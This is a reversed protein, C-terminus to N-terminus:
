KKGCERSSMAAWAAAGIIGASNGLRAPVIKVKKRLPPLINGLASRRIPDLVVAGAQGLGGGIVVLEPNFVNVMNGIAIGLYRAASEIAAKAHPCGRHALRCVTRPDVVMEDAANTACRRQGACPSKPKAYHARVFYEKVIAPASAYAELCGRNGCGCLRGGPEVVTHGLEGATGEYGELLKNDLIVGGGIGTGLTYMVFSAANRGAGACKEGWAAANADNILFAPIGTARGVLAALRVNRWGPLNPAFYITGTRSNIPGPSGIGMARVRGRKGVRACMQRVLSVIRGIVADRGEDGGTPTSAVAIQAGSATVLGAKIDTGGLDIGIYLPKEAM